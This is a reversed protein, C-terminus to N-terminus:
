DTRVDTGRTHMRLGLMNAWAGKVGPIWTPLEFNFHAALGLLLVRATEGVQPCAPPIAPPLCHPAVALLLMGQIAKERFNSAVLVGWRMGGDISQGTGERVYQVSKLSGWVTCQRVRRGVSAQPMVGEFHGKYSKTM